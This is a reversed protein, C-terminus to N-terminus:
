GRRLEEQSLCRPWSLRCGWSDGGDPELLSARGRGTVAIRAEGGYYGNPAGGCSYPVGGYYMCPNAGFAMGGFFPDVYGPAPCFPVGYAGHHDGTM